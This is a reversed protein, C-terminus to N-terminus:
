LLEGDDDTVSVVDDVDDEQPALKAKVPKATPKVANTTGGKPKFKERKEEREQLKEMEERGLLITWDPMRDHTKDTNEFVVVNIEGNENPQLKNLVNLKLTGSFYVGRTNEKAWLAGIARSMPKKVDNNQKTKTETM